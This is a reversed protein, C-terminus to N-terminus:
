EKENVEEWTQKDNVVKIGALRLAWRHLLSPKEAIAMYINQMNLYWEGRGLIINSPKKRTEEIVNNLEDATIKM